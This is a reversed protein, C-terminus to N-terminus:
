DAIVVAFVLYFYLSLSVSLCFAGSLTFSHIFSASSSSSSSSRFTPPRLFPCFLPSLSGLRPAVRRSAFLVCCLRNFKFLYTYVIYMYFVFIRISKNEIIRESNSNITLSKILKGVVDIPNWKIVTRVNSQVAYIHTTTTTTATMMSTVVAALIRGPLARVM